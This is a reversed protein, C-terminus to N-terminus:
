FYIQVLVSMEDQFCIMIISYFVIISQIDARKVVTGTNPKM